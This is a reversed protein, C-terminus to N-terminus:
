PGSLLPHDKGLSPDLRVAERMFIMGENWRGMAHDARGMIDYSSALYADLGLTKVISEAKIRAQRFQGSGLLYRAQSVISEGLVVQARIKYEPEGRRLLKQIEAEAEGFRARKQLARAHHYLFEADDLPFAAAM